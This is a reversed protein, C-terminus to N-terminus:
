QSVNLAALTQSDLTGTAPLSNAKQFDRLAAATKPGWVGDISVKHGEERLKAQANQITTADPTSVAATTDVTTSTTTTTTAATDPTTNIDSNTDVDNSTDSMEAETSANANVDAAADNSISPHADGMNTDTQTNNANHTGDTNKSGEAAIAATSLVAVAATMLLTKSLKMKKEKTPYIYWAFRMLRRHTGPCYQPLRRM